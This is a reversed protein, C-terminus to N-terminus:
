IHATERNEVPKKEGEDHSIKFIINMVRVAPARRQALRLCYLSFIDDSAPFVRQLRWMFYYMARVVIRVWIFPCPVPSHRQLKFVNRAGLVQIKQLEYIRSGIASNKPVMISIMM